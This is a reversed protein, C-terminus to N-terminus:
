FTRGDGHKEQGLCPLLYLCQVYANYARNRFEVRPPLFNEM